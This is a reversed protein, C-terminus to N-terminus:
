ELRPHGEALEHGVERVADDEAPDADDILRHGRGEALAAESDEAIAVLQDQRDERDARGRQGRDDVRAEGPQDGIPLPDAQMLLDLAVQRHHQERGDRHRDQDDRERRDDHPHQELM